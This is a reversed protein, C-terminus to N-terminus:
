KKGKQTNLGTMIICSVECINMFKEHIYRAWCLLTNPNFYEHFKMYLKLCLSYLYGLSYMFLKTDIDRGVFSVRNKGENTEIKVWTLGSCAV